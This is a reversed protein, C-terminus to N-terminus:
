RVFVFEIKDSKKMWISVIMKTKTQRKNHFVFKISGVFKNSVIIHLKLKQETSKEPQIFCLLRKAVKELKHLTETTFIQTQQFNHKENEHIFNKHKTFNITQEVTKSLLLKEFLKGFSKWQM